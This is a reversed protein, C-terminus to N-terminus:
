PVYFGYGCSVTRTEGAKLEFEWTVDSHNNIRYQWNSIWDSQRFDDISIVGNDSAEDAKGPIALTICVRVPEKRFNRITATGRKRILGFNNHNWQLANPQRSLEVESYDGRVDVAVTLPLRTKAGVATYTLLEQAIPLAEKLVLAPGTTWPKEGTNSLELQHWVQHRLLRLPSAPGSQFGEDPLSPQGYMPRPEQPEPRAEQNADIHLTYIHSLPADATWLPLTARGGKVLSMTGTRYVYLDQEGSSLVPADTAPQTTQERWGGGGFAANSLSQVQGMIVPAAAALANRLTRELSLPSVVGKFRFNPVGAVLDVRAGAIDELENIIEGQLSLRPSADINELRYTPIWRIGPTFYYLRLQGAGAPPILALRKSKLFVTSARPLSTVVGPDSAISRIDDIPLILASAETVVKVYRAQPAPAERTMRGGEALIRAEAPNAPETFDPATDPVPQELVTEIVGTIARPEKGNDVLNLTVRRGTNARLLEVMSACPVLDSTRITKTIWEARMPVPQGSETSAWFCGLIAADPVSDTWVEGRADPAADARKVVLTYGDKFVIIRETTLTLQGPAPDAKPQSRAPPQPPPEPQFAAVASASGALTLLATLFLSRHRPTRPM